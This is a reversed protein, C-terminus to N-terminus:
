SSSTMLRPAKSRKQSMQLRIGDDLLLSAHTLIIHERERVFEVPASLSSAKTREEAPKFADPREMEEKEAGVRPREAGQAAELCQLMQHRDGGEAFVEVEVAASTLRAEGLQRSFRDLSTHLQRSNFRTRRGQM